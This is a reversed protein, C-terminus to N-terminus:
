KDLQGMTALTGLKVIVDASGLLGRSVLAKVKNFAAVVAKM